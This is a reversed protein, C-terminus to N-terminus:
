SLRSGCDACHADVADVYMTGGCVPCDAEGRVHIEEYARALVQDLTIAVEQECVAIASM